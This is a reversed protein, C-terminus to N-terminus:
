LMVRLDAKTIVIEEEENDTTESREDVEQISETFVNEKFSGSKITGDKYIMEGTGHQIGKVWEGKYKTGDKWIM